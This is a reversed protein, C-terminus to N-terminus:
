IGLDLKLQAIFEAKADGDLLEGRSMFPNCECGEIDVIVKYWVKKDDDTELENAWFEYCEWSFERLLKKTEQANLM